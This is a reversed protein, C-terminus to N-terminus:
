KVCESHFKIIHYICSKPKNFSNEHTVFVFCINNQEFAWVIYMSNIPTPQVCVNIGVNHKGWHTNCSYYNNVFKLLHIYYNNQEQYHDFVYLGM